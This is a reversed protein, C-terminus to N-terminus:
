DTKLTEVPNMLATKITQYSITALGIVMVLLGATLFTEIGAETRYAYSELWRTSAYYAIPMAVFMGVSILGLLDKFLAVVIANVTAGLIKRIGIEKIRREATLISLGFLGIGAIFVTVFSSLLIVKKWKKEAAYNKANGDDYFQYNYPIVPFLAKFTKEIFPLARAESNAKIRVLFGTYPGYQMDPKCVFLQPKIVNGVSEFHYDKVVGVVLRKEGKFPFLSIQQGMPDRWGAMKVFAENVIVSTTSDSPFLQSFNRGDVFPIKFLDLFNEDVTEYICNFISDGNLKVNMTHHGHPAILEIGPDKSLEERLTKLERLQLNAKTVTVVNQPDFGLEKTTLFDLQNNVTMTAIIMLTALAFQFVILGKQFQSKSSLRFQNYLTQVPKYGSLIIAPYFGSLFGTVLLLIFYAVILKVDLLYSLSLKKNVIDNFVPLLMQAILLAAAFSLCCILFSEGLFQKILQRRGSGVVKRIGIEKARKASRAITLNIFNICAVILIFIAIGSLIYTYLPDSSDSLAGGAKFEQSLHVADFPQLHHYFQQNFGYKRVQEMVEKSESEFVRQMKDAVAQVEISKSCKVFTVVNLNVWNFTDPGQQIPTDFPILIEFQISSNQPCRKAVGTVVYPTFMGEREFLIIKNLADETGFHRIAVDESIVAGRPQTLATKPDGHLLSFSFMAFFNSDAQHVEQGQVEEGIKLNRHSKTLRVYSEIEGLSNMFRPGHLMSTGTLKDQSSGDANRVDIGILYISNVDEHFKDFSWEDKSYLIILVVCSLGLSLGAVNIFSYLKSKM